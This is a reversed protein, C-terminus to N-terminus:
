EHLNFGEFHVQIDTVLMTVLQKRGSDLSEGILAQGAGDGLIVPNFANDEHSDHHEEEDFEHGHAISAEVAVVVVVAVFVDLGMTMGHGGLVVGIHVVAGVANLGGRGRGALVVKTVAAFM